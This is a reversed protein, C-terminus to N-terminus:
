DKLGLCHKFNHRVLFLFLSAIDYPLNHLPFLHLLMELLARLLGSPKSRFFLRRDAGMYTGFGYFFNYTRYSDGTKDASSVGLRYGKGGTPPLFMEAREGGADGSGAIERRRGSGAAVAWVVARHEGNDAAGGATEAAAAQISRRRPSNVM